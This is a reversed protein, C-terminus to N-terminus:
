SAKARFGEIVRNLQAVTQTLYTQDIEMHFALENGIGAQDSIKGEINIHGLKDVSVELSMQEELTEFSAKGKLYESVVKLEDRFRVFENALFSADFRGSFGGVKISVRVSVWEYGQDNDPASLVEVELRENEKGGISWSKM